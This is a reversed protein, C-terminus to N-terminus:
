SREKPLDPKKTKIKGSKQLKELKKAALDVLKGDGSLINVAQAMKEKYEDTMGKDMARRQERNLNTYYAEVVISGEEDIGVQVMNCKPRITGQEKLFEIVTEQTLCTKIKAVQEEIELDAWNPTRDVLLNVAQEQEEPTLLLSDLIKLIAPNSVVIREMTMNNMQYEALYIGASIEKQKSM